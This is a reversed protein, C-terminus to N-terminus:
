KVCSRRCTGLRTVCFKYALPKYIKHDLPTILYTLFGDDSKVRSNPASESKQVMPKLRSRFLLLSGIKINWSFETPFKPLKKFTSNRFCLNDLLIQTKLSSETVTRCFSIKQGCLIVVPM